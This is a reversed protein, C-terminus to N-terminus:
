PPNVGPEGLFVFRKGELIRDLAAQADEGLLDEHSAPLPIASRKAWTLFAERLCM